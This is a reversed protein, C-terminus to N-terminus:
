RTSVTYIKKEILLNFMKSDIRSVFKSQKKKKFNFYSNEINVIYKKCNKYM